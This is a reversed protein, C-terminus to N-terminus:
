WKGYSLLSHSMTTHASLHKSRWRWAVPTNASGNGAIATESPKLIRAEDDSHTETIKKETPRPLHRVSVRFEALATEM